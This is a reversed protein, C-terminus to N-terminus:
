DDGGGPLVSRAQAASWAAVEDRYPEAWSTYGALQQAAAHASLGLTAQFHLLLPRVNAEPRPGFCGYCGRAFRPCIAGCGSRTVQGLCPVGGTAMVCVIGRRKCEVCVAEDHQSPRRGHLLAGSAAVLQRADLPCGPRELDVAIHASLPTSTALSAVWERRPYVAHAFAAHDAHNRLAQVGGTTACAGIAIVFRSAARLAALREAHGPASVSGEVLLVDFPGESRASTAEPFDALEIHECLALLEDECDLLTLQCGDCSAFKVVGIRPRQLLANSM